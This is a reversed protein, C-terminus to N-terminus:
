KTMNQAWLTSNQANKDTFTLALKVNLYHKGLLILIATGFSLRIEM